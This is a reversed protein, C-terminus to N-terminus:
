VLFVQSGKTSEAKPNDLKLVFQCVNFSKVIEDEWCKSARWENIDFPGDNYDSTLPNTWEHLECEFQRALVQVTATKGVGAPGTLLLIPPLQLSVYWNSSM